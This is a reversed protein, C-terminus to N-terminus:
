KRGRKKPTADPDVDSEEGLEPADGDDGWDDMDEPDMDDFLTAPPATQGTREHYAADLLKRAIVADDGFVPEVNCLRVTPTITGGDRVDTSLRITEIVAVIVHRELPKAILDERIGEMGNYEREDKKFTASVSVTM